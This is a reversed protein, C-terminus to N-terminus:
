YREFISPNGGLWERGCVVGRWVKRDDAQGEGVGGGEGTRGGVGDRGRRGSVMGGGDSRQWGSEGYGEGVWWKWGGPHHLTDSMGWVWSNLLPQHTPLRQPQSGFGVGRFRM